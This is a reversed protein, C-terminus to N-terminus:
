VLESQLAQKLLELSHPDGGPILCIYVLGNNKWAVNPVPIYRVSGSRFNSAEPPDEVSSLPIVMLIGRQPSTGRDGFRFEYLATMHNGARDRQFGRVSGKFFVGGSRWGDTPVAAEFNGDFESLSNLAYDTSHLRSCLKELTLTNPEPRYVWWAVFGATLCVVASVVYRIYKRRSVSRLSTRGSRNGTSHTSPRELRASHEALRSGAQYKELLKEKLGPPVTVDRMAQGVKQDFIQLNRFQDACQPCNELHIAASAFERDDRDESDPGAVELLELATRCDM